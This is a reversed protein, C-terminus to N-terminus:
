QPKSVMTKYPGLIYSHLGDWSAPSLNQHLLRVAEVTARVRRFEFISILQAPTPVPWGKPVAAEPGAQRDAALKAYAEVVQQTNAIVTELEKVDVGLLTAMQQELAASNQPAAAKAAQLTNVLGQHYNFFSYYLERDEIPPVSM